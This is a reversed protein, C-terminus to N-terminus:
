LNQTKRGKRKGGTKNGAKIQSNGKIVDRYVDRLLWVPPDRDWLTDESITVHKHVFLLMHYQIVVPQPSIQLKYVHTFAQCPPCM